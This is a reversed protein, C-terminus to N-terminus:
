VMLCVIAFILAQVMTFIFGEKLRPFAVHVHDIDYATTIPRLVDYYTKTLPGVRLESPLLVASNFCLSNWQLVTQACHKEIIM